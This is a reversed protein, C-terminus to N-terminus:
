RCARKGVRDLQQEFGVADAAAVAEAHAVLDFVADDFGLTAADILSGAHGQEEDRILAEDGANVILVGDLLVALVAASQAAEEVLSAPEIGLGDHQAFGRLAPDCAGDGALDRDLQAAAVVVRDQIRFRGVERKMGLAEAHLLGLGGERRAVADALEGHAIEVDGVGAGLQHGVGCVPRM